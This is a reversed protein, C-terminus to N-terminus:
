FASPPLRLKGSLRRAHLDCCEKLEENTREIEEDGKLPPMALTPVGPGFNSGQICARAVIKDASNRLNRSYHRGLTVHM